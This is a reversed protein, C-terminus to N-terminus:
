FPTAYARKRKKFVFSETLSSSEWPMQKGHTEKYVERRVDAFVQSIHVGEQQMMEVLASTYPSNRSNGDLAVFGPKTSYAILTNIPADMRGLGADRSIEAEKAADRRNTNETSDPRASTSGDKAYLEIGRSLEGTNMSAFPNNRCSDLVIVNINDHNNSLADLLERIDYGKTLLEDASKFSVDVPMLYNNGNIQVAHGAFYFFGVKDGGALSGYFKRIAARMSAGDQNIARTVKFDLKALTKAMAQADNIPNTLASQGPYAGNGIVLAIRQQEAHAAASAILLLICAIRSFM